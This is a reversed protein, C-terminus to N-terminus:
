QAAHTVEQSRSSDSQQAVAGGEAPVAGPPARFLDTGLRHLYAVIAVIQKDALGDPGGQAVIEQSIQHAQERAVGEARDILDGYPVGLMLMADVRAQVGGFDTDADLM